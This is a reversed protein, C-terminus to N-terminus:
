YLFEQNKSIEITLRMGTEHRSAHVVELAATDTNLYM